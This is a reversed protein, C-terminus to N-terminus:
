RAMLRRLTKFPKILINPQKILAVQIFNNVAIASAPQRAVAPLSTFDWDIEANRVSAETISPDEHGIVVDVVAKIPNAGHWARTPLDGINFVPASHPAFEPKPLKGLVFGATVGSAHKYSMPVDEAVAPDRAGNGFAPPPEDNIIM